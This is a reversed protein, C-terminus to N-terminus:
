IKIARVILRKNDAFGSCTYLTLVSDKTPEISDTQSPFVERIDAIRYNFWKDKSLVIVEQGTKVERLPLFLGQRAHAFIVTNGTEDPYASGEGFGASDSFVEWYGKVIKAEKVQLDIGMGPIIIRVPQQKKTKDKEKPINLLNKDIRIPEQSFSDVQQLDSVSTKEATIPVSSKSSILFGLVTLIIGASLLFLRLRKQSNKLLIMWDTEQRKIKIKRISASM